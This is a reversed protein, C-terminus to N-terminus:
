TPSPAVPPRTRRWASVATAAAAGLLLIGVVTFVRARDSGGSSRTAEPAPTWTILGTLAARRGNLTLPITWRALAAAKTPDRPLDQPYRLRPDLWTVTASDAIRRWQPRHAVATVANGRARQDDAWSPSGEDVEARGPQLRVFPKGDSGFVVVTHGGTDTLFLGPLRGDLVSVSLGAPAPDATVSFAGLVPLYELHGLLRSRAGGYEVPIVWDALRQRRTANAPAQLRQPHLRHDFWGWSDGTSITVWRPPSGPAAIAPIPGSGTPSNTLYWDPSGLDAQVGAHSIRLFARDGAGLVELPTTTPNQAVVEEAIGARVQVVVSAPLAPRISDLVASIRPDTEHAAAPVCPLAVLVALV